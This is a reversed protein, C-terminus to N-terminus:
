EFAGGYAWTKVYMVRMVITVTASETGMNKCYASGTTGNINVNYFYVTTSGTVAFAHIAVPTYGSQTLDFTQNVVSGASITVGSERFDAYKILSDLKNDYANLRYTNNQVQLVTDALEAASDAAAEASAAAAAANAAGQATLVALAALDNESVSALEQPDVEVALIFNATGLVNSSSDVIKIECLVDGACATMAATCDATLTYGSVSVAYSFTTKDPKVGNILVSDSSAPAYLATGNYLYFEFARAGTDNQSAWIRPTIAGPTMNLNITQKIM